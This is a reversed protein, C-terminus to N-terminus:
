LKFHQKPLHNNLLILYNFRDISTSRNERLVRDCIERREYPSLIIIAKGSQAASKSLSYITEDSCRLSCIILEESLASDISATRFGCHNALRAIEVAIGDEINIELLERYLKSELPKVVEEIFVNRVISYVFPSHVGRGRFHKLRSLRNM